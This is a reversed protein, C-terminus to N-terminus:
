LFCVSGVELHLNKGPSTQPLNLVDVIPLLTPDQSRFTFITQHWRGDRLKCDDVRVEPQFQGGAEFIQGNWAKFRVANQSLKDSSAQGWVPLNLCHITIHQVAESSLLHLFNMQVRGVDFELKTTTIPRLCTLGGQTFNCTVEITDSSCGVNPDIWYTGDSMKQQCNMLDRCVRAPNDRTGLPNKISQILSSLYHLTKFIEGGHDLVAFDTSRYSPGNSDMLAQFAASIDEQRFSDVFLPPGPPGPKGRPGPPGRPGPIGIDGQTGKDGMPGPNGTPGVIGVPGIVGEKGMLGPPGKPGQIGKYGLDGPPGKPGFLGAIGPYGTEGVDGPQGKTGLEGKAGPYGMGGEGGRNGSLGTQGPLGREGRHGTPGQSGQLGPVGNNGRKGPMGAPGIEGDDGQEGKNGLSGDKGPLGDPGSPGEQGQRGVVGRPGALGIAGPQGRAGPEGPKGSKGKMGMSGKSGPLGQFGPPGAHGPLGQQGAKGRPGDPGEQGSYGPDGPEGRDGRDGVPGRDGPAGPAGETKGDDGQEGKEGKIGPPGVPGPPGAHGQKFIDYYCEQYGSIGPEGQSGMRGPSGVPGLTGRSGKPGQNGTPGIEGPLGTEGLHGQFGKNGKRGPKGKEGQKGPKGEVGRVGPIGSLGSPGDKGILGAVGREGKEGDPGPEGKEGKLGDPGQLGSDGELGTEGRQGILGQEGPIGLPGLDGKMGNEGPPGPEGIAGPPGKHGIEGLPGVPGQPGPPGPGGPIGKEGPPGSSGPIGPFGQPGVLGREGMKGPQGILGQKGQIGLPGETGPLGPGGAPGDPGRAGRRGKPGRVGITGRSGPLGTPGPPGPPGVPGPNGPHGMSGKDGPPGPGGTVGRDGKEGGVGTEGVPGIFGILGQEGIKGAKGTDGPEGKLGDGGIFGPLGKWGPLGELGPAGPPGIPGEDGEHGPQGRPGPFGRAGPKGKLGEPGNQGPPGIDGPFGLLRFTSPSYFSLLSFTSQNLLRSLLRFTSPFYVSLLRFYVSSQHCQKVAAPLGALCGFTGKGENLRSPNEKRDSKDQGHTNHIKVTKLHSLPTLSKKLGYPSPSGLTGHHDDSSSHGEDRLMCLVAGPGAHTQAKPHVGSLGQCTSNGSQHLSKQNLLWRNGKAKSAKMHRNSRQGFCPPYSKPGLSPSLDGVLPCNPIEPPRHHTQLGERTWAEPSARFVSPFGYERMLVCCGEKRPLGSEQGQNRGLRTAGLDGKPGPPGMLYPFATPDLWQYDHTVPFSTSWISTSPQITASGPKTYLGSTTTELKWNISTTNNINTVSTRREVAPKQTATKLKKSSLTTGKIPKSTATTISPRATIKQYVNKKTEKGPEKKFKTSNNSFSLGQKTTVLMAEKLSATLTTSNRLAVTATKSVPTSSLQKDTKRPAQSTVTPLSPAKTTLKVPIKVLAIGKATTTLNVKPLQTQPVITLNSKNRLLGEMGLPLSAEKPILPILPPLNPRYTDAQRCQKKLYKCYNHAAKAPPYIDFQCIAGEFQISHQNMKGLMFVGDSDLTKDKNIHLSANVRQKGCSTYLTVKQGQIDVAMNHWQGDHVNYDFYVSQKHGVYVIIKGPIFQLGLELKKKKSKIAFLFANNIRHSCLSLVLTLDTGLSPPIVSHIPAEVRARQTLIVGSKYPIVGHPVPRISTKNGM